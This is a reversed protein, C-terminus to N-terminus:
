ATKRRAARRASPTQVRFDIANAQSAQHLMAEIAAQFARTADSSPLRRASARVPTQAPTAPVHLFIAPVTPGIQALLRLVRYYLHNCVYDGANTSVRAAIGAARIAKAIGVVDVTTVIVQPGGLVPPGPAGSNDIATASSVNRACREVCVVGRRAAQGTMVVASPKIRQYAAAFEEVSRDYVCPLARVTAVADASRWGELRKAAEFSANVSEGGFPEFATVLVASKAM